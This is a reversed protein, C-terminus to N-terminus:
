SVSRDTNDHNEHRRASSGGSGSDQNDGIPQEVLVANPSDTDVGDGGPRLRRLGGQVAVKPRFIREDDSVQLLPRLVLPFPELALQCGSGTGRRVADQVQVVQQGVLEGCGTVTARREHVGAHLEAAVVRRDGYSAVVPLPHEGRDGRESGFGAGGVGNGQSCLEPLEVLGGGDARLECIGAGNARRPGGGSDEHRCRPECCCRDFRWRRRCVARAGVM